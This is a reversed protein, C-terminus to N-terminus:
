TCNAAKLCYDPIEYTENDTPHKVMYGHLIQNLAVGFHSIPLPHPNEVNKNM